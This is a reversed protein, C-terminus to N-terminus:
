ADDGRRLGPGALQLANYTGRTVVHRDRGAGPRRLNTVM